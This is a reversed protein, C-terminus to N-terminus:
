AWRAYLDTPLWVHYRARTLAVYAVKLMEPDGNDLAMLKQKSWPLMYISDSEHGKAAHITTVALGDVSRTGPVVGVATLDHRQIYKDVTYRSLGMVLGELPANVMDWHHVMTPHGASYLEPDHWAHPALVTSAIETAPRGIRYGPSMYEQRDAWQWAAPKEGPLYGKFGGFIAQGEDGCALLEGGEAVMALAACTELRSADQAEDYAVFPYPDHVMPAGQDLWRALGVAHRQNPTVRGYIWTPAPGDTPSWAHLAMLMPDQKQRGPAASVYDRLAVDNRDSIARARYAEASRKGSHRMEAVPQVHNWTRKYITNAVEAPVGKAHLAQAADRSYTVIQWPAPWGWCENVLRTTKGTGPYGSRVALTVDPRYRPSTMPSYDLLLPPATGRM